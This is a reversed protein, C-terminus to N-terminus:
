ILIGEQKISSIMIAFFYAKAIRIRIFIFFMPIRVADPVFFPPYSISEM